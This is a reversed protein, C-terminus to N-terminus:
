EGRPEFSGAYYGYKEDTIGEDSLFSTDWRYNDNAFYVHVFDSNCEFVIDGASNQMIKNFNDYGYYDLHESPAEGIVVIQPDLDFLVDAPVRGSKRGHHPAFLIDVKPWAIEEKIKELFDNEIDGMWMVRVGENVSYTFIPSINNFDTGKETHELALQFDPDSTKPWLFNIGAAGYNKGDNPNNKNMWQRTCGKFVYFAKENDRLKCYHKFDDSPDNKKAKNEVCYFNIIDTQEDLYKLGCLHDEDPHTSIFRSIAKESRKQKIEATIAERNEDDMCCDIITFNDSNHQIYFMDGQEGNNDSVAFSKVISM